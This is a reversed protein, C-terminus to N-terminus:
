IKMFSEWDNRGLLPCWSIPREYYMDNGVEELTLKRSGVDPHNCIFSAPFKKKSYICKRCLPDNFNLRM